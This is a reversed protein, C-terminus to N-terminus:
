KSNKAEDIVQPLYHKYAQYGFYANAIGLLVFVIGVIIEILGRPFLLLNIGFFILFFGLAINGRTQQWKTEIPLKSRWYKIKFYIFASLSIIIFIFLINTM